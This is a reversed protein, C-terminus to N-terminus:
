PKGKTPEIEPVTADDDRAFFMMHQWPLDDFEKALKFGNPPLEKLVQAKSMKHEPKIPVSEDETRYEVLVILGGPALADRMHALMQEPHSFEHYVDM